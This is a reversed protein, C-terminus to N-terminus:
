NKEIDSETEANGLANFAQVIAEVFGAPMQSLREAKGEFIKNGEDDRCCAAAVRASTGIPDNLVDSQKTKENYRYTASRIEQNLADREGASLETVWVYTECSTWPSLDVKTNKFKMLVDFNFLAAM